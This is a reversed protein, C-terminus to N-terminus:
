FPCRDVDPGPSLKKEARARKRELISQVHAPLFKERMGKAANESHTIVRLNGPEYGRTADVRDISLWEGRSEAEHDWYGACDMLGCFYDYSITFKLGRAVAHTKLTAYASPKKNRMRWRYQYHAHCLGLKDSRGIDKRCGKVCCLGEGPKAKLVFLGESEHTARRRPCM